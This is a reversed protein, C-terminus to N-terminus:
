DHNVESSIKIVDILKQSYWHAKQSDQAPYKKHLLRWQYKIIQGRLFAIFGDYGLAARIADICEIDGHTYHAPHDIINFNKSQTM